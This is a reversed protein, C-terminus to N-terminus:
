VFAADYHDSAQTATLAVEWYSVFAMRSDWTNTPGGGIRQRAIYSGSDVPAAPAGTGANTSEVAGDLYYKWTGADRTVIIQHWGGTTLSGGGVGLMPLLSLSSQAIPSLLTTGATNLAIGQRISSMYPDSTVLAGWGNLAGPPSDRFATNNFLDRVSGVIAIPQVWLEVSMNDVATSYTARDFSSGAPLRISVAGSMPASTELYAPSGQTTTVDYGNGSSDVPNGSADQLDYFAMPSDALIEAIYDSAAM